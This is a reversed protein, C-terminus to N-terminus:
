ESDLDVLFISSRGTKPDPGRAHRDACSYPHVPMDVFVLYQVDSRADCVHPYAAKLAIRIGSRQDENRSVRPHRHLVDALRGDRQQEFEVGGTKIAVHSAFRHRRALRRQRNAWRFVFTTRLEPVDLIM